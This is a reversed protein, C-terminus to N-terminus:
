PGEFTSVEHGAILGERLEPLDARPVALEVERIPLAVPVGLDPTAGPRFDQTTILGKIHDAAVAVLARWFRDDLDVESTAIEIGSVMPLFFQFYEGERTVAIGAARADRNTPWDRGKYYLTYTAVSGRYAAKPFWASRGPADM